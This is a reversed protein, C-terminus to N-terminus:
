VSIRVHTVADVGVQKNADRLVANLYRRSPIDVLSANVRKFFGASYM